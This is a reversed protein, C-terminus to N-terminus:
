GVVIYILFHNGEGSGLGLASEDGKFSVGPVERTTWHNLIQKGICPVHTQDRTPSSEVHKPAVLGM